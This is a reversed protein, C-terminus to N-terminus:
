NRATSIWALLTQLADFLGIVLVTAGLTQLYKPAFGLWLREGTGAIVLAALLLVTNRRLALFDVVSRRM